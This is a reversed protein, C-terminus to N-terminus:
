PLSRRLALRPSPDLALASRRFLVLSLVMMLVHVPARPAYGAALWLLLAYAKQRQAAHSHLLLAGCLGMGAALPLMYLLPMRDAFLELRQAGYLLVPLEGRPLALRAWLMSAATLSTALAALLTRAPHHPPRLDHRHLWLAAVPLALYSLEGVRRLALGLARLGSHAPGRLYLSALWSVFAALLALLAFRLLVRTARESHWWLTHAALGLALLTGTSASLVVVTPSTRASPLLAALAVTPLFLAVLMVSQLRLWTGPAHRRRWWQLATDFLAVMGAIAALNRCLDGWRHWMSLQPRELHVYLVRLAIRSYALEFVSAAVCLLSLLPVAATAAATDVHAPLDPAASVSAATDDVTARNLTRHTKTKTM